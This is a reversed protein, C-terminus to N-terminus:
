VGVVAKYEERIIRALCKDLSAFPKKLKRLDELMAMEVDTLRITLTKM